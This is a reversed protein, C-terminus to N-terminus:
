VIECLVSNMVYFYEDKFALRGDKVRLVGREIYKIIKEENLVDRGNERLFNIDAGITTRMALMLYEAAVQASVDEISREDGRMYGDFDTPNLYRKGEYYGAAAVGFGRYPALFWYKNNHRCEYGRRAFNSVEYRSFEPSLAQAAADYMDAEIDEDPFYGRNFLPTGEECKLAYVSIHKIQPLKVKNVSSVVDAITQGELGLMLDANVNTIGAASAREVAGVFDEYTHARLGKLLKNEASQLGLSLRNVGVSVCESIFEDSCTEPNAEVTIEPEVLKITDYLASMIETIGGRYLASPTGGGFFVSDCECRFDSSKIESILRKVYARQVEEGCPFSVFSCYECKRTCFPIHIYIGGKM